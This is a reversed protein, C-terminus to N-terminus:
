QLHGKTDADTAKATSARRRTARRHSIRTSEQSVVAFSRERLARRHVAADDDDILRTRHVEIRGCQVRQELTSGVCEDHTVTVSRTIAARRGVDPDQRVATRDRTRAGRAINAITHVPGNKAPRNSAAPVGLWNNPHSIALDSVRVVVGIVLERLLAGREHALM